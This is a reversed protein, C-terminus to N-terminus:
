KTILYLGDPASSDPLTSTMTVAPVSIEVNGNTIDLATGNSSITNIANKEAMDWAAIKETTIVSLITILDDSVLSKGDEKSVKAGIAETLLAMADKNDIILALLESLTDGEEAAGNVLNGIATSIKTDVSTATDLTAILAAIADLATTLSTETGDDAILIVDDTSSEPFFRYQKDGVKKVLGGRAIELDTLNTAM